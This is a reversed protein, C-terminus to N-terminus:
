DNLEGLEKKYRVEQANEEMVLKTLVEGICTKIKPTNYHFVRSKIVTHIKMLKLLYHGTESVWDFLTIFEIDQYQDILPVQDNKLKYVLGKKANLNYVRPIRLSITPFFKNFTHFYNEMCFKNLNYLEQGGVFDNDTVVGNVGESSAFILPCKNLLAQEAIKISYDIMSIGVTDNEFDSLQTCSSFHFIMDIDTYDVDYEYEYLNHADFIGVKILEGMLFSNKGTILINM